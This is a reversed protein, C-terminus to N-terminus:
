EITVGLHRLSASFSAEYSAELWLTLDRADRAVIVPCDFLWLSACDRRALVLDCAFSARVPHVPESASAAGPLLVERWKGNVDSLVGADGATTLSAVLAPDADPLLWRAPAHHVALISGDDRRTLRGADGAGAGLCRPASGFGQWEYCDRPTVFTASAHRLRPRVSSTTTM